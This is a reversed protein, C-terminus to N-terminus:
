KPNSPLTDFLNKMEDIAQNNREEKQEPTLNEPKQKALEKGLAQIREAEKQRFQINDKTKAIRDELTKTYQIKIGKEYADLAKELEGMNNYVDGLNLYTSQSSSRLSLSQNFHDISLDFKKLEGYIIGLYYHAESRRDKSAYFAQGGSLQLVTQFENAAAKLDKMIRLTFGLWYHAEISNKETEIAKRLESVAKDYDNKHLNALGQKVHINQEGQKDLEMQTMVTDAEEGKGTNRLALALNLSLVELAYDNLSSRYRESVGKLYTVAEPYKQINTLVVGKNLITSIDSPNKALAKDIAELRKEPDCAHCSVAYNNYVVPDDEANLILSTQFESMSLDRAGQADYIEGLKMHSYAKYRHPQKVNQFYNAAKKYYDLAKIKNQQVEGIIYGMRYYMIGDSCGNKEATVFAQFANRYDKMEYYRFGQKIADDWKDSSKSNKLYYNVDSKYYSAYLNAPAITIILIILVLIFKVPKM